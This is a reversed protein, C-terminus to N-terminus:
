NNQGFLVVTLRKLSVCILSCLSHYWYWTPPPTSTKSIQTCIRTCRSQKEWLMVISTHFGARYFVALILPPDLPPAGGWPGFNECNWATKPFQQCFRLNAGGGLPNAGRGVPFGPDAGSFEGYCACGQPCIKSSVAHFHLFNPQSPLHPVCRFNNTYM